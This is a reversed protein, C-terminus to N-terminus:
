SALNKEFFEQFKQKTLMTEIISFVTSRDKDNLKQILQMQEIATKDEVSVVTPIDEELNVIQDITISYLKALRDLIKVSAERQGNEIKNYHSVGLEIEAAVQKQLLGKEERLKKINKALDM